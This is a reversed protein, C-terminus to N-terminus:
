WRSYRGGLARIPRADTGAPALGPVGHLQRDPPKIYGLDHGRHGQPVQHGQHLRGVGAERDRGPEGRLPRAEMRVAQRHLGEDRGHGRGAPQLHQLEGAAVVAFTHENFGATHGGLVARTIGGARGEYLRGFRDVVFNYDIDSHGLSKTHYAYIARIQAAAQARTYSSTSATHHVFGAPDHRSTPSAAGGRSTAGWQARTTIPPSDWPPWRRRAISCRPTAARADSAASPAHVLTLETGKPLRGSPTDIRVQVRKAGATMLPDSGTRAATAEASGPDPGHEADVRLRDVRSWHGKERVRVQVSTGAAFQADATVAVLAASKRIRISAAAAPKVPLEVAGLASVSGCTRSPRTAPPRPGIRPRGARARAPPGPRGDAAPRRQGVRRGSGDRPQNARLCPRRPRPRRQSRRRPGGPPQLWGRLRPRPQGSRRRWRWPPVLVAM